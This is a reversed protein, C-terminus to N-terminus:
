LHYTRLVDKSNEGSSHIYIMHSDLKFKREPYLKLQEEKERLLDSFFLVDSIFSSDGLSQDMALAQNATQKIGPEGSVLLHEVKAASLLHSLAAPSNRPSITFPIYGARFLGLETLIYSITDSFATLVQTARTSCGFVDGSTAFIGVVPAHDDTVRVGLGELRSALLFAATHIAHIAEKWSITKFEGSSEQHYTFITHGPNNTLHWDVIEPITKSGDITPPIFSKSRLGQTRPLNPFAM